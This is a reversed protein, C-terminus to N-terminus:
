SIGIYRFIEEFKNWDPPFSNKGYCNVTLNDSVINLCWQWGTFFEMFPKFCGTNRGSVNKLMDCITEAKDTINIRRIKGKNYCDIFLNDATTELVAYIDYEYKQNTESKLIYRFGYLM